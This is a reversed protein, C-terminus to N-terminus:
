PVKKDVAHALGVPLPVNRFGRDLVSSGHYGLCEPFQQDIGHDYFVCVAADVGAPPRQSFVDIERHARKVLFLSELVVHPGEGGAPQGAM